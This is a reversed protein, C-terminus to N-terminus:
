RARTDAPEGRQADGHVAVWGVAAQVTVLDLGHARLHGAFSALLRAEQRLAYGLSRRLAPYDEVARDLANV